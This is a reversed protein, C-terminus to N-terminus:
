PLTVRVEGAGAPRPDPIVKLGILAAVTGGGLLAAAGVGGGIVTPWFWPKSTIPAEPDDTPGSTVAPAYPDEEDDLRARRGSKGASLVAREGDDSEAGVVRSGSRETPLKVDYRLAVESVSGASGKHGDLLATAGDLTLAKKTAAADGYIEEVRERAKLTEISVDLLDGQIAMAPLKAAAGTAADILMLQTPVHTSTRTVVGVVVAKLGKSKAAAALSRTNAPSLRNQALEDLWGAADKAFFGPSLTAEEGAGVEVIVGFPPLGDRLCRVLHRGPPVNTVRLPAAATARGDVEVAAGAGTADVVLVGRKQELVQKKMKGHTAIFLPPYRKKDLELEPDLAVLAALRAAVEGEQDQRAAVEALGLTADALLKPGELVAAAKELQALAEGFAQRAKGLQLKDLLKRGQALAKEGQERAARATTDDGTPRAGVDIAFPVAEFVSSEDLERTVGATVQDALPKGADGLPVLAAVGVQFARAKREVKETGPAAGDKGPSPSLIDDDDRPAAADAGTSGGPKRDADRQRQIVQAEAGTAGLISLSCALLSVLARVIRTKAL